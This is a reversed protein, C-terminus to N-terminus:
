FLLNYKDFLNYLTNVYTDFFYGPKNPYKTVKKLSKRIHDYSEETAYFIIKLLNDNPATCLTGNKFVINLSFIFILLVELFLTSGISNPNGLSISYRILLIL